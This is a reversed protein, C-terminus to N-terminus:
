ASWNPGSASCTSGAPWSASRRWTCSSRRYSWEAPGSYSVTTGGSSAFDAATASGLFNAVQDGASASKDPSGDFGTAPSITIRGRWPYASQGTEGANDSYPNPLANDAAIDMMIFPYLMVRFGRAKLEQIGAILSADNPAGGFAPRGDIQTMVQATSRSLGAVTWPFNSGGKRTEKTSNEVKPRITCEGCRLDDGFWAAVLNVLGTNPAVDQLLDLSASLDSGTVKTHRNEAAYSGKAIQRTVEAPEYGFETSGPILAVGKVLPELRGVARFVEATVVPM